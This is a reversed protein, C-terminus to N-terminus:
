RRRIWWAGSVGSTRFTFIEKLVRIDYKVWNKSFRMSKDRIHQDPTENDIPNVHDVEVASAPHSLGSFQPQVGENDGEAQALSISCIVAALLLVFKM